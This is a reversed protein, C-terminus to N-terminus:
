RSIPLLVSLMRLSIRIDKIDPKRQRRAARSAGVSMCGSIGLGRVGVECRGMTLRGIVLTRAKVPEGEACVVVGVSAGSKVKSRRSTQEDSRIM